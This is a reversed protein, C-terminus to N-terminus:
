RISFGAFQAPRSDSQRETKRIYGHMKEDLAALFANVESAKGEVEVQVRGDSLNKVYGSVEYGRAVEMTSYRFGVGQVRGTYFATEHYVNSM